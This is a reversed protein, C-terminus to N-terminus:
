DPLGLELMLRTKTYDSVPLITDAAMLSNRTRGHELDWVEIGHAAVAAPIRHMRFLTRAVPSFNAHTTIVLDPDEALGERLLLGGFTVTRAPLPIHGTARAAVRGAAWLELAAPDDSKSLVTVRGPGLIEAAAEVMEISYSQIGGERAILEPVWIQLKGTKM